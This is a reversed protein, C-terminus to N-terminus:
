KMPIYVPPADLSYDDDESIRYHHKILDDESFKNFLKWFENESQVDILEGGYEGYPDLQYNIRGDTHLFIYIDGYCIRVWDVSTNGLLPCEIEAYKDTYEIIEKSRNHKLIDEAISKCYEFQKKIAEKLTM